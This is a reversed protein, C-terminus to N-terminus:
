HSHPGLHRARRHSTRSPRASPPLSSGRVFAVRDHPALASNSTAGPSDDELSKRTERVRTSKFSLPKVREAALCRRSRSPRADARSPHRHQRTGRPHIRAERGGSGRSCTLGRGCEARSRASCQIFRQSAALPLHLGRRLEAFEVGEREKLPSGQVTPWPPATVDSTWGRGHDRFENSRPHM